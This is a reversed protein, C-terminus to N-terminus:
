PYFIIWVIFFQRVWLEPLLRFKVATTTKV